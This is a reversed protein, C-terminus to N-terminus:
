AANHKHRREARVPQFQSVLWTFSGTLPGVVLLVLFPRVSSVAQVPSRPALSLSFVLTCIVAVILGAAAYHWVRNYNLTRLAFLVMATPLLTSLYFFPFFLFLFAAYAVAYERDVFVTLLLSLAGACIPALVIAIIARTM